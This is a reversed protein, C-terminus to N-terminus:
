SKELRQCKACIGFMEISHGLVKFGHGSPNMAAACADSALRVPDIKKCRVCFLHHHHELGASEYRIENDALVIERLLGRGSCFVL